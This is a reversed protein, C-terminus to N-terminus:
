LEMVVVGVHKEGLVPHGDYHEIHVHRFGPEAALDFFYDALWAVSKENGSIVLCDGVRGCILSDTDGAIEARTLAVCNTPTDQDWDALTLAAGAGQKLFEAFRKLGAHDATLTIQRIDLNANAFIM